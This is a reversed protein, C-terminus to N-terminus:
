KPFNFKIEVDKKDEESVKFLEKDTMHLIGAVFMDPIQHIRVNYNNV